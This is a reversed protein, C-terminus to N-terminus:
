IPEIVITPSMPLADRFWVIWSRDDVRQPLYTVKTGGSTARLADVPRSFRLWVAFSGPVPGELVARDDKPEIGPGGNSDDGDDDGGYIGDRDSPMTSAGNITLPPRAIYEEARALVATCDSTSGPKARAIFVASSNPAPFDVLEPAGFRLRRDFVISAAAGRITTDVFNRWAFAVQHEGGDICSVEQNGLEGNGDSTPLPKSDEGRVSITDFSTPDITWYTSINFLQDESRTPLECACGTPSPLLKMSSDVLADHRMIRGDPFVTFTSTGGPNRTRECEFRTTWEVKAQAVAPGRLESVLRSTVVEAPGHASIRPSPAILLGTEDERFCGPAPEHGMVDVDGIVLSDPFHFGAGDAFRLAFGDAAIIAGTGAETYTVGGEPKYPPVSFCGAALVVAAIGSEYRSSSM